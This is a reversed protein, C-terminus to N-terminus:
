NRSVASYCYTYGGLGSDRQVELSMPNKVPCSALFVDEQIKMVASVM